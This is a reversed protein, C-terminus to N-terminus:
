DKRTMKQNSYDRVKKQLINGESKVSRSLLSIQEKEKKYEGEVWNKRQGAYKSIFQLEKKAKRKLIKLEERDKKAYTMLISNYEMLQYNFNIIREYEQIMEDLTERYLTVVSDNYATIPLLKKFLNIENKYLKEMEASKKYYDRTIGNMETNIAKQKRYLDMLVNYKFYITDLLYILLRDNKIKVLSPAKLIDEKMDEQVSHIDECSQKEKRICTDLRKYHTRTQPRLINQQTKLWDREAFLDYVQCENDPSKIKKKSIFKRDELVMVKGEYKVIKDDIKLEKKDLKLLSKRLSKRARAEKKQIKNKLKVTKSELTKLKKSQYRYLSDTKSKHLNLYNGASAYLEINYEFSAINGDNVKKSAYDFNSALQYTNRAVDYNNGDNYKKGNVGDLYNRFYLGKNTLMKLESRYNNPTFNNTDQGIFSTYSIASDNLQWLPNLPAHTYILTDPVVDFYKESPQHSFKIKSEVYPRNFVQNLIKGTFSPKTYLSGSGWTPDVLIYNSDILVVNWTHNAHLFTQGEQYGFGKSYGYITYSEIGLAECMDDFLRSYEYCLAKKDKLVELSTRDELTHNRFSKVDFRINETM